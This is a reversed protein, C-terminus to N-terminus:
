SKQVTVQDGAVACESSYGVEYIIVCDKEKTVYSADKM